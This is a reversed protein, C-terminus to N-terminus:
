SQDMIEGLGEVFTRESYPNLHRLYLLIEIFSRFLKIYTTIKTGFKMLIPGYNVMAGMYVGRGFIVKVHM